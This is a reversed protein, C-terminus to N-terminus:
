RPTAVLYTLMYFVVWDCVFLRCIVLFLGFVHVQHKFMYQTGIAFHKIQHFVNNQFFKKVEVPEFIWLLVLLFFIKTLRPILQKRKLLAKIINFTKVTSFDEKIRIVKRRSSAFVFPSNRSIPDFDLSFAGASQTSFAIQATPPKISKARSILIVSHFILRKSILSATFTDNFLFLEVFCLHIWEIVHANSNGYWRQLQLTSSKGVLEKPLLKTPPIFIHSHIFNYYQQAVHM